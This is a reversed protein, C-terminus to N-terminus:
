TTTIQNKGMFNQHPSLSLIEPVCMTFANSLFGSPVSLIRTVNGLRVAEEQLKGHRLHGPQDVDNPNRVLERHPSHEIRRHRHQRGHAQRVCVADGAPPMGSQM